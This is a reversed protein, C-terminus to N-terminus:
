DGEYNFTIPYDYQNTETNVMISLQHSFRFDGSRAQFKTQASQYTRPLMASLKPLKYLYKENPLKINRILENGSEPTFWCEYDITTTISVTFSDQFYYRLSSNFLLIDLILESRTLFTLPKSIPLPQGGLFVQIDKQAIVTFQDFSNKFSNIRPLLEKKLKEIDGDYIIHYFHKLDFPIDNANKTILITKKGLAHAYGVEYFVNSNKGSMDAIILDAKSIQNFIRELISEQFIQEEVRECYVQAQRCCEKIGDKYIRNFSSSFPMLVFCFYKPATSEM